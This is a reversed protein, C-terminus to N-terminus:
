AHVSSDNQPFSWSFNPIFRLPGFGSTKWFKKLLFKWYFIYHAPTHNKKLKLFISAIKDIKPYSLVVHGPQRLGLTKPGKASRARIGVLGNM